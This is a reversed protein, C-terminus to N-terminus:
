HPQLKKGVSTQNDAKTSLRQLLAAFEIAWAKTQPDHTRQALTLCEFARERYALAVSM